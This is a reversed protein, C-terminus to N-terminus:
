DMMHPNRATMDIVNRVDEANVQIESVVLTGGDTGILHEMSVWVPIVVLAAGWGVTPKSLSVHIGTRLWEGQRREEQVHTWLRGGSEGIRRNCCLSKVHDTFPECVKWFQFMGAPYRVRMESVKAVDNVVVM